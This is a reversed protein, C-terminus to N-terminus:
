MLVRVTQEVEPGSNSSNEHKSLAVKIEDCVAGSDEVGVRWLCALIHIHVCKPIRLKEREIGEKRVPPM